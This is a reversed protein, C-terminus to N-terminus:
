KGSHSASIAKDAKSLDDKIMDLDEKSKALSNAKQFLKLAENPKGDSLYLEGLNILADVDNPNLSLAKLYASKAESNSKMATFTVGLDYWNGADSPNMQIAKLFCQKAQAFDHKDAYCHGMNKYSISTPYFRISDKFSNIADDLKGQSHLRMGTANCQYANQENDDAYASLVILFTFVVCAIIAIGFKLAAGLRM